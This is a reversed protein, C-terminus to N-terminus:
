RTEDSVQVVGPIARLAALLSAKLTPNTLTGSITVHGADDNTFSLAPLLGTFRGDEALTREIHDALNDSTPAGEERSVIPQPLIPSGTMTGAGSGLGQTTTAGAGPLVVLPADAQGEGDRILRDEDTNM